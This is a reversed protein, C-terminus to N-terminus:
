ESLRGRRSWLGVVALSAVVMAGATAMASVSTLFGGGEKGNVALELNERGVLGVDKPEVSVTFEFEDELTSEPPEVKIKIIRSQGPSLKFEKDASESVLPIWGRFGESILVVVTEDINGENTVRIEFIAVDPYEISKSDAGVAELKLGHITQVSLVVELTKVDAANHESSVDIYLTSGYGDVTGENVTLTLTVRLAFLEVIHDNFMGYVLLTENAEETTRYDMRKGTSDTAYAGTTKNKLVYLMPVAIPDSGDNTSNGDAMSLSRVAYGELGHVSFQANDEYFPQGAYDGNNQVWFVIEVEGGPPQIVQITNPDEGPNDFWANMRFVMNSSRAILQRSELLNVPDARNTIQITILSTEGEDEGEVTVWIVIDKTGRAPISVSDIPIGNSDEADYFMADWDDTNKTIQLDYVDQINGTNEITIPFSVSAGTRGSQTDSIVEVQLGHQEDVPVILDDSGLVQGNRLLEVEYVVAVDALADAPVSVNFEVIGVADEEISISTASLTAHWGAPPQNNSSFQLNYTDPGNGTNQVQVQALGYEGPKVPNLTTRDFYVSGDHHQGVTVDLQASCLLAGTTGGTQEHARITITHTTGSSVTADPTVTVDFDTSAGIALLTSAPSIDDVWSAKSGATQLVISFDTNGDNRVIFRGTAPQFPESEVDVISFIFSCEIIEPITLDLQLEATTNEEDETPPANTVTATIDWCEKRAQSNTPVQVTFTVTESDGGDLAVQTPDVDFNMSSFDCGFRTENEQASIDITENFQGTNKVVVPWIVEADNGNWDKSLPHSTELSVGYLGGGGGDGRTTTVTVDDQGPTPDGGVENAIASVTTECSSGANTSLNVSLTVDESAGAAITGPVQEVTSTYGQCTADQSASLQVTMDDEGDNRVNITYEATYGPDTTQSTPFASLAVTAASVTPVLSLMLMSIILMALTRPRNDQKSM